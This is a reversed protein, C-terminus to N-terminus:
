YALPIKKCRTVVALEDGTDIHLNVTASPHSLSSPALFPHSLTTPISSSHSDQEVPIIGPSQGVFSFFPGTSSALLSPMSLNLLLYPFALHPPLRFASFHQVPVFEDTNKFIYEKGSIGNRLIRQKSIGLVGEGGLAYRNDAAVLVIRLREDIV